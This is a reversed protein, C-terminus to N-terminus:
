FQHKNGPTSSSIRTSTINAVAPISVAKILLLRLVWLGPVVGSETAPPRDRPSSARSQRLIVGSPSPPAAPYHLIAQCLSNIRSGCALHVPPVAGHIALMRKGIRQYGLQLGPLSSQPQCKDYNTFTQRADEAEYPRSARRHRLTPFISVILTCRHEIPTEIRLLALRDPHSTRSAMPHRIRRM